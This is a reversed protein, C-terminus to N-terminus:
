DYPIVFRDAKEEVVNRSNKGIYLKRSFLYM